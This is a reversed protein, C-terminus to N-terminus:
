EVSLNLRSGLCQHGRLPIVQGKGIIINKNHDRDVGKNTSGLSKIILM